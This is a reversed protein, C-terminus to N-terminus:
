SEPIEEVYVEADDVSESDADEYGADEAADANEYEDTFDGSAHETYTGEWTVRYQPM